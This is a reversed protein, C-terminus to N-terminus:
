ENNIEEACWKQNAYTGPFALKCQELTKEAIEDLREQKAAIRDEHASHITQISTIVAYAILILLITTFTKM